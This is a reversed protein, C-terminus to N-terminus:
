GILLSELLVPDAELRTGSAPYHRSAEETSLRRIVVRCIYCWRGAPLGSSSLWGMAALWGEDVPHCPPPSCPPGGFAPWRQAWKKIM